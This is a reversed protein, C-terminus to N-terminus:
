RGTLLYGIVTVALLVLAVWWWVGRLAGHEPRGKGGFERKVFDEYDFEEDPLDLGDYIDANEKWGSKACAGCQACAAAGRPV